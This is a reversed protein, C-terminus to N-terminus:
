KILTITGRYTQIIKNAFELDIEYGYVRSELYHSGQTGDWWFGLSQIPFDKAQYIIQGWRGFVKYSKVQIDQGNASFVQFTENKNDQNPTFVNPIFVPCPAIGVAISTDKFCGNESQISVQHWGQELGSFEGNVQDSQGDLTYRVSQKSRVVIKIRGNKLDCTSPLSIVEEIKFTEPKQLIVEMTDTCGNNDKVTAIHKGVPVEEFVRDKQFLGHDLAYQLTGSVSSASVSIKGNVACGAPEVQVDHISPGEKQVVQILISDPCNNKDKIFFSYRGPTLRNFLSDEQFHIGDASYSINGTGGTVHIVIKGTSQDCDSPETEYTGIKLSPDALFDYTSASGGFFVKLNCFVKTSYQNLDLALINGDQTAAFVAINGCNSRSSPANFLSLIEQTVNLKHVKNLKFDAPDIEIIQKNLVSIFLRDDQFVIGGSPTFGLDGLYNETQNLLDYNYVFGESGTVYFINSKSCCIGTFNQLNLFSHILKASKTQQDIVFLKGGLTLLYLNGAVDFTLDRFKEPIDPTYLSRTECNLPNYEYIGNSQDTFLVSQGTSTFPLLGFLAFILPKLVPISIKVHGIMNPTLDDKM